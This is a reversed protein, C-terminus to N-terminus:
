INKELKIFHRFKGRHVLPTELAEEISIGKKLRNSLSMEALNYERAWEALCKTKGKYTFNRNTRKNRLQEDMTAWRCNDPSYGKNNDIRDLSLGLQHTEWM